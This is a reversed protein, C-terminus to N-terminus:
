GSPLSPGAKLDTASCILAEAAIICEQKVSGQREGSNRDEHGLWGCGGLASTDDALGLAPDVIAFRNIADEILAEDAVDAEDDVALGEHNGCGVSAGSVFEVNVARGGAAHQAIEILADRDAHRGVGMRIFRFEFKRRAGAVAMSM